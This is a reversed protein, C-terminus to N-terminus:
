ISDLAEWRGACSGCPNVDTKKCEKGESRYCSHTLELPVELDMGLVIVQTKTMDAFPFVADITGPRCDEYIEFDDKHAGMYVPFGTTKCIAALLANRGPVVTGEKQFDFGNGTLSNFGWWSKPICVVAEHLTLSLEECIRQCALRENIVARQGYDIFLPVPKMGEKVLHYLLVTSDIGGSFPVVVRKM